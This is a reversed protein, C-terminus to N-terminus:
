SLRLTSALRLPTLGFAMALRLDRIDIASRGVPKFFALDGTRDTSSSATITAKRFSVRIGSSPQRHEAASLDRMERQDGCRQKPVM